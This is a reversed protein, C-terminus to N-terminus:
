EDEHALPFVVRSSWDSSGHPLEVLGETVLKRLHAGVSRAAMLFFIPDVDLYCAEVIEGVTRAGRELAALIQRERELRHEVYWEIVEDPDEMPEGHGPYLMTVGIGRLKELSALYEIMHEVIVSSGGMIHDGTFLADGARYCLHYPTHGPTDIVEISVEGVVVVDGDALVRDPKFAPGPCAGLAAARFRRALANAIEVHDLHCHTVLVAVPKATGIAAVIAEEHQELSPGPDIVAVEGASEVLWTNTGQGTFMGPNGARVRTIKM